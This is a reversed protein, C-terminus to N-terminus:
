RFIEMSRGLIENMYAIAMGYNVIPIKKETAKKLRSKMKAKNLM